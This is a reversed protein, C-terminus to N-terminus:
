VKLKNKLSLQSPINKNYINLINEAIIKKTNIAEPTTHKLSYLKSEKLKNVASKLSDKKTFINLIINTFYKGYKDSLIKQIQIEGYNSEILKIYDKLLFLMKKYKSYKKTNMFASLAKDANRYDKSALLAIIYLMELNTYENRQIMQLHFSYKFFDKIEEATLDIPINEGMVKVCKYYNLRLDMGSKSDSSLFTSMLSPVCIIFAPFNLFSVDRIFIDKNSDTLIKIMYNLLEANNLNEARAWSEINFDYDPKKTFFDPNVELFRNNFANDCRADPIPNDKLGKIKFYTDVYIKNSFDVGQFIETFCREISIPLYPHAGFWVYYGERKEDTLVVCTVPYNLGLSADKVTVKFGLKKCYDVINKISEYQIYFEEPIDPFSISDKIAKRIVHREYIESLGEVLAEEPTNGACSGTFGGTFQMMHTPIYSIENKNIHYFPLVEASKKEKNILNEFNCCINIAAKTYKDTEDAANLLWLNLVNKEILEQPSLTMADPPTINFLNGNELREMFEGHASARAYELTTGKGNATVTMDGNFKLFVSETVHDNVLRPMNTEELEKIGIDSLIKRIREVTKVPSFDKKKDYKM